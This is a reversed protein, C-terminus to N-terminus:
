HRETNQQKLTSFDYDQREMSKLLPREDGYPNLMARHVAGEFVSGHRNRLNSATNYRISNRSREASDILHPKGKLILHEDREASDTRVLGQGYVNAKKLLVEPLVVFGTNVECRYAQRRAAALASGKGEQRQKSLQIQLNPKLTITQPPLAEDGMTGFAKPESSPLTAMSHHNKLGSSNNDTLM